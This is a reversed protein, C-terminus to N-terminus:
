YERICQLCENVLSMGAPKHSEIAGCEGIGGMTTESCTAYYDMGYETSFATYCQKKTWEACNSESQALAEINALALESLEMEQQSTYVGYGAICAFTAAFAVRIIKKM